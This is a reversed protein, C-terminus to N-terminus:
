GIARWSFIIFECGGTTFCQSLHVGVPLGKCFLGLGNFFASLAVRTTEGSSCRREGYKYAENTIGGAVAKGQFWLGGLALGSSLFVSPPMSM